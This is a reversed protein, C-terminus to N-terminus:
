KLLQECDIHWAVHKLSGKQVGVGGEGRRGGEGRKSAGQGARAFLCSQAGQM